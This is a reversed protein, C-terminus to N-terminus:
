AYPQRNFDNIGRLAISVKALEKALPGNLRRYDELAAQIQTNLERLQKQTATPPPPKRGLAEKVDKAAQKLFGRALRSKARLYQATYLGKDKAERMEVDAELMRADAAEWLGLVVTLDKAAESHCGIGQECRARNMYAAAQLVLLEQFVPLTDAAAVEDGNLLECTGEADCSRVTHAKLEPKAGDNSVMLVQMHTRPKAAFAAIITSYREIAADFDKIKYLQNGEDKIASATKYFTSLSALNAAEDPRAELEFPLLAQISKVPLGEEEELGSGSASYM